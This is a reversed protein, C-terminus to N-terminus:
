NTKKPRIKTANEELKETAQGMTVFFVGLLVLIAGVFWQITMKDWENFFIAGLLSTIAVNACMNLTTGVVSGDLRLAKVFLNLMAANLLLLVLLGVGRQVADLQDDFAFKGAVSALAALTGSLLSYVVKM